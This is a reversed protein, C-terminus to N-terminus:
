IKIWTWDFINSLRICIKCSVRSLFKDFNTFLCANECSTTLTGARCTASLGLARNLHEGPTVMQSKLLLDCLLRERSTKFSAHALGLSNGGPMRPSGKGRTTKEQVTGYTGKGRQIVM